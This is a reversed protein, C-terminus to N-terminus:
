RSAASLSSSGRQSVIGAFEELMPVVARALRDEAYCSTARRRASSGVRLALEQNEFLNLVQAAMAEIDPCVFFDERDAGEVGEIGTPTTVLAKGALMAVISKLKVGSGIQQPNIFVLGKELLERDDPIFGLAEVGQDPQAFRETGGGALIFRAQPVKARIAPWARDIFEILAIAKRQDTSGIHIVTLPDGPKVAAYRETNLSVGLVGHSQVGLRSKYEQTDNGSIVWLRHSLDCVQREFRRIKGLEIRWCLREAASGQRHCGDFGKILVNHSRQAVAVDALEKRIAPLSCATPVDEYVIAVGHGRKSAENHIRRVAARVRANAPTFRMCLAPFRRPLSLLFCFWKSRVPVPIHTWDIPLGKWRDAETFERRVLGLFHVRRFVKVLQRLSAEVAIGYGDGEAPWSPSILIVEAHKPKEVM